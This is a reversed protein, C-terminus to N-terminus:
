RPPRHMAHQRARGAHRGRPVLGPWAPGGPGHPCPDGRQQRPDPCQWPGPRRPPAPHVGPDGSRREPPQDARDGPRGPVAAAGAGAPGPRPGRARRPAAGAGRAAFRRDRRPQGERAARAYLVARSAGVAEAALQLGDLVLHPALWLLTADKDSAPESEAGNAIVVPQRGTVRAADFVAQLKRHAPFAGGGRGTLGAAQLEAILRGAGGRYPLLGHAAQHAALDQPARGPKGDPARPLLRPVGSAPSRAPSRPSTVPFTAENPMTVTRGGPAQPRATRGHPCAGAPARSTAPPPACAGPSGPPWPPPAPSRSCSCGAARCTAARGRPLARVRRALQRLVAPARCVLDPPWHPAPDPQHHHGRPVPRLEGGRHRAM